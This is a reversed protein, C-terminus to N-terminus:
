APPLPRTGPRGAVADPFGRVIKKAVGRLSTQWAQYVDIEAAVNGHKHEARDFANQCWRRARLRRDKQKLFSTPFLSTVYDNVKLDLVLHIREAQGRNCLRHPFSFDAYWLEGPRWVQDEHCIQVQVGPNTIIPIHLRANFETDISEHFDYHWYINKGPQLAMLRVRQKECQFSDIVSELYPAPALVPTKVYNGPLSKLQDPNGEHSILGIASWGGDHYRGHAVLNFEAIIKKTEAAILDTDIWDSGKLRSSLNVGMFRSVVQWPYLGQLESM